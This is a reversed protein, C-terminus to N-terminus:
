PITKTLTSIAKPSSKKLYIQNIRLSAVILGHLLSVGVSTSLLPYVQPCANHVFTNTKNVYITNIYLPMYRASVFM